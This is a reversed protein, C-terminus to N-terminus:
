VDGEVVVPAPPPQPREAVRGDPTLTLKGGTETEVAQRAADVLASVTQVDPDLRQAIEDLMGATASPGPTGTRVYQALERLEAALEADKKTTTM